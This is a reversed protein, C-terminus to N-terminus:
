RNGGNLHEAIGKAEIKRDSVSMDRWDGKENLVIGVCAWVKEYGHADCLERLITVDEGKLGQLTMRMDAEAQTFTAPAEEAPKETAKAVVEDLKRQLRDLCAERVDTPADRFESGKLLVKVARAKTDTTGSAKDIDACLKEFSEIESKTAEKFPIPEDPKTSKASAVGPLAWKPLTPLKLHGTAKSDGRPCYITGHGGRGEQIDQFRADDLDYLYRGIGWKVAARKLAGSVGGKLAEIDSTDAVDSKAVWVGDSVEIELTCVFGAIKGNDYIPTYSDRWSGPGCVSDLRDQVARATIYPLVTAKMKDKTFNGVRWEIHEEAFPLALADFSERDMSGM